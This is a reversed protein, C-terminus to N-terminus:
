LINRREQSLEQQLSQLQKGELQLNEKLSEIKSLFEEGRKRLPSGSKDRGLRRGGGVRRPASTQPPQHIEHAIWDRMQTALEDVQRDLQGIRDQQEQIHSAIIGQHRSEMEENLLGEREMADEAQELIRRQSQNLEARLDNSILVLRDREGKLREIEEERQRLKKELDGIRREKAIVEAQMLALQENAQSNNRKFDGQLKEEQVKLVIVEMDNKMEEIVQKLQQNEAQLERLEGGQMRALPSAKSAASEMMAQNYQRMFERNLQDISSDHAMKPSPTLKEQSQRM